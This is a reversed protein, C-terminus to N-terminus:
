YSKPSHGLFLGPVSNQMFTVHFGVQRGTVMIAIKAAPPVVGHKSVEALREDIWFSSLIATKWALLSGMRQEIQLFPMTSIM